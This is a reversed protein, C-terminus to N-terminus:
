KPKVHANEPESEDFHQVTVPYGMSPLANINFIFFGPIRRASTHRTAADTPSDIAMMLMLLNKSTTAKSTTSNRPLRAAELPAAKCCM